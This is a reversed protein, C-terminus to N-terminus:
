CCLMIKSCFMSRRINQQINRKQVRKDGNCEILYHSYNVNINKHITNSYETFQAELCATMCDTLHIMFTNCKIAIKTKKM